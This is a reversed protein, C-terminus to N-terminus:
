QGPHAGKESSFTVGQDWAGQITESIISLYGKHACNEGRGCAQFSEMALVKDAWKM